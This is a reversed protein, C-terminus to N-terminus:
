TLSIYMSKNKVYLDYFYTKNINRIIEYNIKNKIYLEYFHGGSLKVDDQLLKTMKDMIHLYTKEDMNNMSYKDYKLMHHLLMQYCHIIFQKNFLKINDPLNIPQEVDTEPQEVDSESQEVYPKPQEVESDSLEDIDLVPELINYITYDEINFITNPTDFNYISKHNLIDDNYDDKGITGTYIYLNDIDNWEHNDTLTVYLVNDEETSVDDYNFKIHANHLCREIYEKLIDYINTGYYDNIENIDDTSIDIKINVTTLNFKNYIYEIELLREYIHTFLYQIYDIVDKYVSIKIIDYLFILDYKEKNLFFEEYEIRKDDFTNEIFTNSKIDKCGDPDMIINFMDSEPNNDSWKSYNIDNIIIYPINLTEKKIDITTTIYKNHYLKDVFHKIYDNLLFLINKNYINVINDQITDNMYMDDQKYGDDNYDKNDDVYNTQFLIIYIKLKNDNDYLYKINCFSYFIHVLLNHLHIKKINNLKKIYYEIDYIIDIINYYYIYYKKKYIVVDYYKYQIIKKIDFELINVMKLINRDSKQFIELNTPISKNKGVNIEDVIDYIHFNGNEIIYYYGKELNQKKKNKIKFPYIESWKDLDISEAM